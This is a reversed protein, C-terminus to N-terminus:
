IRQYRLILLVQTWTKNIELCFKIYIYINLLQIFIERVIPLLFYTVFSGFYLIYFPKLTALYTVIVLM